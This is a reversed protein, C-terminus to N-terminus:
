PHVDIISVGAKAANGPQLVKGNALRALAGAMFATCERLADPNWAPKGALDIQDAIAECMNAVGRLEDVFTARAM